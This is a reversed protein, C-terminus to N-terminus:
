LSQSAPKRAAVSVAAWPARRRGLPSRGVAFGLTASLAAGREATM